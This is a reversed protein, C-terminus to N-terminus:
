ITEQCSRFLTQANLAQEAPREGGALHAKVHIFGKISLFLTQSSLVLSPLVAHALTSHFPRSWDEGNSSFEDTFRSFSHLVLSNGRRQRQGAKM